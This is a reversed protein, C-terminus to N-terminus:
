RTAIWVVGHGVAIRGERGASARGTIANTRPDIRTVDGDSGLAWVNGEGVAVDIVGGPVRVAGVAVNDSPEIRWLLDGRELAVWVADRGAALAIPPAPLRISALRKGTSLEIRSASSSRPSM